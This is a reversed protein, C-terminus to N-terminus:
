KTSEMEEWVNVVVLQGDPCELGTLIMNAPKGEDGLWVRTKYRM